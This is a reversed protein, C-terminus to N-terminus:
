FLYDYPDIGNSKMDLVRVGPLTRGNSIAKELREQTDRTGSPGLIRVTETKLKKDGIDIEGENIEVYFTNSYIPYVKGKHWKGAIFDRDGENYLKILVRSVLEGQRQIEQPFMDPPFNWSIAVPFGEPIEPYAGFGFPSELIEKNDNREHSHPHDGIQNGNKPQPQLKKLNSNTSSEDTDMNKNKKYLESNHKSEEAFNFEENDSKDTDSGVKTSQTLENDLTLQKKYRDVDWNYWFYCGALIVILTSILGILYKM